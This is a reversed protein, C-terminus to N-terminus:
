YHLPMWGKFIKKWMAEEFAETYDAAQDVCYGWNYM